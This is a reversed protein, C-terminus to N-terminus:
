NSNTLGLDFVFLSVSLSAVRQLSKYNDTFLTQVFHHCEKMTCRRKKCKLLKVKFVKM